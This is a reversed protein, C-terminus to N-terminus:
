EGGDTERSSFPYVLNGEEYTRKAKFGIEASVVGKNPDSSLTLKEISIRREWKALASVLETGIETEAVPITHQLSRRVNTGFERRMPREDIPTGIIQKMGDKVHDLGYSASINGCEDSIRFPFAIGVGLPGAAIAASSIKREFTSGGITIGTSTERLYVTAALGPLSWSPPSGYNGAQVILGYQDNFTPIVVTLAGIGDRQSSTVIDSDSDYLLAKFTDAVGSVQITLARGVLSPEGISPPSPAPAGTGAPWSNVIVLAIDSTTTAVESIADCKYEDLHETGGVDNRTYSSEIAGTIAIDNRYWQYSQVNSATISFTADDGENAAQNTPQVTILPTSPYEYAGISVTSGTHPRPVTTILGHTNSSLIPTSGGTDAQGTSKPWMFTSTGPTISQFEDTPTINDINGSSYQWASTQPTTATTDTAMNSYGSMNLSGFPSVNHYAGSTTGLVVCNRVFSLVPLDSTLRSYVGYGLTASPHPVVVCNEVRVAHSSTSELHIHSYSDTSPWFNLVMVNCVDTTGVAPPQGGIYIGRGAQGVSIGPYNVIIDHVFANYDGANAFYIYLITDIDGAAVLNLYEVIVIGTGTAHISLGWTDTCVTKHGGDIDGNHPNDSTFKATHGNLAYTFSYSGTECTDAIQEYTLDGTLDITDYIAAEFSAYDAGSGAQGVTYLGQSIPM